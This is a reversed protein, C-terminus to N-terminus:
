YMIFTIIIVMLYIQTFKSSISCQSFCYNESVQEVISYYDSSYEWSNCKKTQNQFYIEDTLFNNIWMECQSKSIEGEITVNPLFQSKWTELSINMGQPRACWYEVPFALFSIGLHNWATTINCVLTMYFIKRQWKGDEGIIDTVDLTEKNIGKEPLINESPLKGNKGIM